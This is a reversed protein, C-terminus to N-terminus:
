INSKKEINRLMANMFDENLKHVQTEHHTRNAETRVLKMTNSFENPNSYFIGGHDDGLYYKVSGFDTTIVPIGCARAELISLPLGISSNPALVPFIYLDSLQYIEEINEIYGDLIIIGNRELDLKLMLPGVSDIPTSSSGVVVVQCGSKQLEILSGLNRGENLHGMHSIVYAESAIGYKKRLDSKKSSSNIPVFKSLDTYLPLLENEIGLENLMDQLLPSPTLVISPKFFRVMMKQWRKLPKPQLAIMIQRASSFFHSIIFHRVFGAFTSSAFPFYIITDPGFAVIQAKLKRSVFLKNTSICSVNQINIPGVRCIVQLEYKSNLADYLNYVTKKIGEDYPPNFVESILLVKRM